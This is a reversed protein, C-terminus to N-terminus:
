RGSSCVGQAPLVVEIAQCALARGTTGAEQGNSTWGLWGLDAVHVRYWLDYQESAPGTLRLQLAEIGLAKGTTGAMDTTWDQWGINSVHARLEVALVMRLVPLRLACRKLLFIADRPALRPVVRWRRWGASIPWMRRVSLGPAPQEDTAAPPWPAEEIAAPAEAPMADDTVPAEDTTPAEDAAFTEDADVTVAAEELAAAELAAAELAWLPCPAALAVALATAALAVKGLRRM